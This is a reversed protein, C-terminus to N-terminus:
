ESDEVVAPADNRHRYLDVAAWGVYTLLPLLIAGYWSLIVPTTWDKVREHIRTSINIHQTKAELELIAEVAGELLQHYYFFDLVGAALVLFFLLMSVILRLRRQAYLPAKANILYAAIAGIAGVGGMLQLRYQIILQNFHMALEEYHFWLAIEADTLDM